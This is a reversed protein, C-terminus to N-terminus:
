QLLALATQPRQNAQSLVTTSSQQMIQARTLEATEKAYDTDRIRMRAASVNEEINNLNRITGQLRNQIAGLKARSGDIIQVAEDIIQLNLNTILEEDEPPAINYKQLGVQETSLGTLSAIFAQNALATAEDPATGAIRFQLTTDNFLTFTNGSITAQINEGPGENIAQGLVLVNLNPDPGFTVEGVTPFPAYPSGVPERLLYFPGGNV